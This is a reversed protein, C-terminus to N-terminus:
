PPTLYRQAWVSLVLLSWLIPGHNSFGSQHAQILQSVIQRDIIGVLKSQPSLLSDRLLHHLPGRLWQDIPVNFGQKPRNLLAAPLENQFSQKLIWKVEGRHIKLRSPIRASLELLEHDLFPPRVELGWAMSARDIKVLYDDPLITVMDAAIMGSLPDDPPATRYAEVIPRTPDHDQLPPLFDPHLLKRRLPLRCIKQTNAYARSPPLALNTMVNKFRLPRPLWDAKPWFTALWGLFRRVPTPLWRRVSAEKLDHIYRSYGGFAEDGGDGSLVVKVHQAALRSVLYTPIASTDAFPEDFYQTIEELLHVSDPTVLEEVHVTQYREAVQRAYPLESYREDTFGISFTQLPGHTTKPCAAIIVSSDLGGSLFAGVPVDAILHVKISEIVKDRVRSTWEEISAAEDTQFTLRWYTRTSPQWVRQDIQLTTASPLKKIERFISRPNITMGFALYDELAVPDLHFSVNPHALIAKLESAFIFKEDDHYVYLPKIGVRDRALLLRRSQRDWIAFAYMGRLRTVLEPGLEEYLHVLVETDSRTRFQHGKKTLQETLSQYNYIEGNFTVHITEDENALPQRGGELDIIALRRHVLGVGPETWFGAGDPGRHAMANGMKELVVPDVPHKPDRYVVGAIGCM